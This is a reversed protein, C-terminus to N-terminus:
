RYIQKLRAWSTTRLGVPVAAYGYCSKLTYGPPL